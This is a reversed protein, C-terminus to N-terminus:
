AFLSMMALGVCCPKITKRKLDVVDTIKTGQHTCCLSLASISM